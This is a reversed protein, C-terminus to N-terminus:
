FFIWPSLFDGATASEQCLCVLKLDKEIVSRDGGDIVWRGAAGWWSKTGSDSWKNPKDIPLRTILDGSRRKIMELEDQYIFESWRFHHWATSGMAVVPRSPGL